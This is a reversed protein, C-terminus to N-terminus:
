FDREASVGWKGLGLLNTQQYDYIEKTFKKNSGVYVEYSPFTDHQIDLHGKSSSPVFDIHAAYNITLNTLAFAVSEATGVFDVHIDGNDKRYAFSNLDALGPISFNLFRTTGVYKRDEIVEGLGTDVEVIEDTKVGDEIHPPRILTRVEFYEVAGPAGLRGPWLEHPGNDSAIDNGSPDIDNEPNSATFSYKHLSLPDEQDGEDSDMSQFRGLTPNM